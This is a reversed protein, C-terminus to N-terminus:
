ASFGMYIAMALILIIFVFRLKREPLRNAVVAGLKTGLALGLVVGAIAWWPLHSGQRVYIWAAPLTLPLAAIVLSLAQAQHQNMHLFLVSLATVALGGGIGLLGSSIGGVAGIVALGTWRPPHPEVAAPRMANSKTTRVASLLALLLLYGVFIYRLQRDSFRATFAAGIPGGIIFGISLAVVWRISIGRGRRSYDSIGSISTPPAQAVLSAAQALHQPFGLTLSIVPVLIGGPSVGLLGSAVGAATGTLLGKLLQAPVAM